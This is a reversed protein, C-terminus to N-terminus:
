CDAIAAHHMAGHKPGLMTGTNIFVNNRFTISSASSDAGQEFMAPNERGAYNTNNYVQYSPNGNANPGDGYRDLTIWSTANGSGKPHLQGTWTAGAGTIYPQPLPTTFFSIKHKM